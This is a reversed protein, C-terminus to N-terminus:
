TATIRRQILTNYRYFDCLVVVLVVIIIILLKKKSLQGCCFKSFTISALPYLGICLIELVRPAQVIPAAFGGLFLLFVFSYGVSFVFPLNEKERLRIEGLKERIKKIIGSNALPKRIQLTKLFQISFLGIIFAPYIFFLINNTIGANQSLTPVSMVGSFYIHVAFFSPYVLSGYAFWLTYAYVGFILFPLPNAKFQPPKFFWVSLALGLETVIFYLTSLHHSLILAFVCALVPLTRAFTLKGKIFRITLYVAVLYFLSGVLDPCYHVTVWYGLSSFSFLFAAIAAYKKNEPIIEKVLLFLLATDIVYIFFPAIRFFTDVPVGLKVFLYAILFSMPFDHEYMGEIGFDVGTNAWSGVTRMYNAADPEFGAVTSFTVPFFMRFCIILAISSILLIIIDRDNTLSTIMILCAVVIASLAGWYILPIVELVFTPEPSMETLEIPLISVFAIVFAVIVALFLLNRRNTNVKLNLRSGKGTSNYKM